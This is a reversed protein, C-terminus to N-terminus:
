FPPEQNQPQGQANVAAAAAQAKLQEITSLQRDVPQQAPAVAAAAQQAWPDPQQYPYGQPPASVQAPAMQAPQPQYQVPAQTYAAAYGQQPQAGGQQPSASAWPDAQTTVYTDQAVQQPQTPRQIPVLFGPFAAMFSQGRRVQQEDQALSRWLFPAKGMTGNAMKTPQGYYIVGIM